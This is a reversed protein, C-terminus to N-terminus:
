FTSRTNLGLNVLKDGLSSAKKKRGVSTIEPEPNKCERSGTIRKIHSIQRNNSTDHLLQCVFSFSSSLFFSTQKNSPYTECFLRTWTSSRHLSAQILRPPFTLLRVARLLRLPVRECCTCNNEAAQTKAASWDSCLWRLELPVVFFFFVAALLRFLFQFIMSLRRVSVSTNRQKNKRWLVAVPVLIQSTNQKKKNTKKRLAPHCTPQHFQTWGSSCYVVTQQLLPPHPLLREGSNTVRCKCNGCVRSM